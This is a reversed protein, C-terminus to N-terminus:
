TWLCHKLTTELVIYELECNLDSLRFPEFKNINKEIEILPIPEIKKNCANFLFLMIVIKFSLRLILEKM